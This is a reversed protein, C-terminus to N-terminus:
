LRRNWVRLAEPRGLFPTSLGCELCHIRVVDKDMVSKQVWPTGGCCPCAWVPENAYTVHANKATSM